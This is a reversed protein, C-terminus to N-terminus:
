IEFGWWIDLVSNLWEYNHMRRMSSSDSCTNLYWSLYLLHGAQRWHPFILLHCNEWLLCRLCVPRVAVDSDSIKEAWAVKRWLAIKARHCLDIPSQTSKLTICCLLWLRLFTIYTSVILKRMINQYVYLNFSRKVCYIDTSNLFLLLTVLDWCSVISRCSNYSM